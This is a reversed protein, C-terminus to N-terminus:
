ALGFLASHVVQRECVNDLLAATCVTPNEAMAAMAIWRYCGDAFTQQGLVFWTAAAKRTDFKRARPESRARLPPGVQSSNLGLTLCRSAYLSSRSHM